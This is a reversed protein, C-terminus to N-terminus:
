IKMRIRLTLGTTPQEDWFSLTFREADARARVLVAEPVDDSAFIQDAQGLWRAQRLTLDDPDPSALELDIVQSRAQGHPQDLWAELDEM